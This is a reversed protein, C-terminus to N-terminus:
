PRLALHEKLLDAMMSNLTEAQALPLLRLWVSNIM